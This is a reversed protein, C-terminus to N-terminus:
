LGVQGSSGAFSPAPGEHDRYRAHGVPRHGALWVRGRRPRLDGALRERAAVRHLDAVHAQAIMYNLQSNM